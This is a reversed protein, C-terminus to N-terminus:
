KCKKKELLLKILIDGHCKNPHCWCGLIKGELEELKNFLNTTRIHNEYLELCKELGYKKVSFPNAWKSGIAGKVYVTMDRGIYIHEPKIVWNELDTYGILKLKQKKINIIEM